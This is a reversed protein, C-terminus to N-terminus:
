LGQIYNIKLDNNKSHLKAVNINKLHMLATVEAGLRAMPERIAM